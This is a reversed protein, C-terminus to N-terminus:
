FDIREKLESEQFIILCSYNVKAKEMMIKMGLYGLNSFTVTFNTALIVLITPFEGKDNTIKHYKHTVKSVTDSM